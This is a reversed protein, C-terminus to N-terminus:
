DGYCKTCCDCKMINGGIGCDAALVKLSYFAVLDCVEDPMFGKINNHFMRMTHLNQLMGIETPVRDAFKNNEIYLTRLQSALGIGSPLRGTLENDNLWLERLSTMNGIIDPVNGNLKNHQLHLMELSAMNDWALPISGTLQNYDFRVLTLRAESGMEDPLPGTFQNNQMTLEKLHNMAVFMGDPVVGGIRNHEVAFKRLHRVVEMEPPITGTIQNNNLHIEFLSTLKSLSYPFAGGLFNDNLYVANLRHLPTLDPISGTLKNNDLALTHLNYLRSIEVPISSKIQNNGLRIDTVGEMLGIEKPITGTMQNAHLWLKELRFMRGIQWPFAGSIKNHSLDLTELHELAKFEPPLTGYVHNRTLNLGIIPKNEDLPPRFMPELGDLPDCYVGWWSCHGKKTMWFDKRVWGPNPVGEWQKDGVEIAGQEGAKKQFEAYSSYYFVALAYRQLIMPDAPDLHAPDSYAIWRIAMHEPSSTDLFVKTHSVGQMVIHDLIENFRADNQARLAKESLHNSRSSITLGATLVLVLIAALATFVRRRTRKDQMATKLSIMLPATCRSTHMPKDAGIYDMDPSADLHHDTTRGSRTLFLHRMYEMISSSTSSQTYIGTDHDMLNVASLGDTDRRQNFLGAAGRNSSSSKSPSYSVNSPRGARRDVNAARSRLFSSESEAFSSTDLEMAPATGSAAAEMLELQRQRALRRQYQSQKSRSPTSPPSPM